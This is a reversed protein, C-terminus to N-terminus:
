IIEKMFPDSTGNKQMRQDPRMFHVYYATKEIGSVYRNRTVFETLFSSPWAM